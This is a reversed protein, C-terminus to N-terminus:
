VEPMCCCSYAERPYTKASMTGAKIERLLGVTPYIELGFFIVSFILNGALAGASYSNMIYNTISLIFFIANFVVVTGLMCVNYKIAAMLQFIYFLAVIVYIIIVVTFAVTGAALGSAMIDDNANAAAVGMVAAGSVLLILSIVSIVIGILAMVIVARRFDCCCGCCKLGQKEGTDEPAATNLAVVDAVADAVADTKKVEDNSM